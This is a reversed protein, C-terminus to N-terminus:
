APPLPAEGHASFISPVSLGTRAEIYADLDFFDWGLRAPRAPPRRHDQRRGHLRHPRHPPPHHAPDHSHALPHRPETASQANM